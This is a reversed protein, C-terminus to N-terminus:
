LLWSQLDIENAGNADASSDNDGNATPFSLWCTIETSVLLAVGWGGGWGRDTTAGAGQRLPSSVMHEWEAKILRIRTDANMSSNHIVKISRQEIARKEELMQQTCHWHHLAAQPDSHSANNRLM